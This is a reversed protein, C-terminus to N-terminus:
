DEDWEVRKGLESIDNPFNFGCEEEDEEFEMWGRKVTITLGKTARSLDMPDCQHGEYNLKGDIYLGAWGDMEIVRVDSVM